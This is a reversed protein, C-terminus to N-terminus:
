HICDISKENIEIGMGSKVTESVIEYNKDKIKDTQRCRPTQLTHSFNTTSTLKKAEWNGVKRKHQQKRIHMQSGKM